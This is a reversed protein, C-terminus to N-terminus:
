SLNIYPSANVNWPKKCFLCKAVNKKCWMSFCIKHVCRNCDQKCFEYEEGINIEDLCIPCLDDIGKASIIQDNTLKKYKEITINNATYVSFLNKNQLMLKIDDDSFEDKDPDTEKMIRILIFFIHKCRNGRTTFDPCTCIPINSITVDYVNGTSGM